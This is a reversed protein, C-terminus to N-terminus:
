SIDAVDGKAAPPEGSAAARLGGTQVTVLGQPTQVLLFGSQDLGATVGTCAQPGHVEVSRGSVWTPHKGCAARFAKSPHPISCHSRRV